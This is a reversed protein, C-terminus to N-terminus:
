VVIRNFDVRGENGNFGLSNTNHDAGIDENGLKETAELLGRVAVEIPKFLQLIGLRSQRDISMKFVETKSM